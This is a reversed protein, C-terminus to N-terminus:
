GVTTMNGPEFPEFEGPNELGAAPQGNKLGLEVSVIGDSEDVGVKKGVRRLAAM